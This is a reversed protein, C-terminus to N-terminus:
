LIVFIITIPKELDSHRKKIIIKVYKFNLYLTGSQFNHVTRTILRM